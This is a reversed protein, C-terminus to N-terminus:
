WLQPLVMVLHKQFVTCGGEQAEVETVKSLDGAPGEDDGARSAAGNGTIEFHFYLRDTTVGRLRGERKRYSSRRESESFSVRQRRVGETGGSVM